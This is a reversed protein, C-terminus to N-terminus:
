KIGFLQNLGDQLNEDFASMAIVDKGGLDLSQFDFARSQNTPSNLAFQRLENMGQFFNPSQQTHLFHQQGNLTGQDMSPPLPKFIGQTLLASGEGKIKKLSVKIELGNEMAEASTLENFKKELDFFESFLLPYFPSNKPFYKKLQNSVTAAKTQAKQPEENPMSPWYILHTLLTRFSKFHRHKDIIKKLLIVILDSLFRDKEIQDEIPKVCININMKDLIFNLEDETTNTKIVQDVIEESSHRKLKYIFQTLKNFFENSNYPEKDLLQGFSKRLLAPIGGRGMGMQDLISSFIEKEQLPLGCAKLIKRKAKVDLSNKSFDKLAAEKEAIDLPETLVFDSKKPM